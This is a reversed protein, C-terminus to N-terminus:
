SKGIAAWQPVEGVLITEAATFGTEVEVATNEDPLMAYVTIKVDLTIEHRTQNIGAGEFENRFSTEVTSNMPVKVRIKPGRGTLLGGGLISGLPIEVTQTEQRQLEELVADGVASKLRNMNATNTSVSLIKGEADKTVVALDDYGMGTENLVRQAADNVARTAATTAQNVGYTKLMPRIRIDVAALLGVALVVLLLLFLPGKRAGRRLSRTRRASPFRHM